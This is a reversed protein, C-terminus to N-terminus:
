AELKCFKQKAAQRIYLVYNALNRIVIETM